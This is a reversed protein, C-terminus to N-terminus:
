FAIQLQSRVVFQTGAVASDPRFGTIPAVNVIAGTSQLKTFAIGFDTTWKANHGSLYGNVGLTLINQNPVGPTDIRSWEYRAFGEWMDTFYYGGQVLFGFLDQGPAGGSIAAHNWAFAGFLNGGGLEAQADVTFAFSSVGYTGAMTQAKDYHVAAGVMVGTEEGSPSTFDTFQDWTGMALWDGRATASLETDAIVASPVNSSTRPGNNLSAMIRFQDAEYTAMIGQTYGQTFLYNMNSREVALQYQSDVLEERMFPDKYQGVQISWGNGYDYGVYANLLGARVDAPLGGYPSGAPLGGGNPAVNIDVRYFWEPSVINGSLMFKARTVEFGWLDNLTGVNGDTHDWTFRTQMLFNTKLLWNGDTSSLIFGDDYGANAGQALMSSRTDADALVDQVLSRIEDARQETLWGEDNTTEVAALRSELQAIRAKLEANTADSDTDAFSGGTLTLSAAGVLLGVRKIRNM